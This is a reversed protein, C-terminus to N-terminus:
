RDSLEIRSCCRAARHDMEIGRGGHFMNCGLQADKIRYGQGGGMDM